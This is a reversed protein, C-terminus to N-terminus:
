KQQAQAELVRSGLILILNGYLTLRINPTADRTNKRAKPKADSCVVRVRVTRLRRRRVGILRRDVRPLLFPVRVRRPRRQGRPARHHPLAGDRHADFPWGAAPERAIGGQTSALVLVCRVLLSWRGAGLEWSLSLKTQRLVLWQPASCSIAMLDPVSKM